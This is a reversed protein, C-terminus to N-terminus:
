LGKQCTKKAFGIACTNRIAEFSLSQLNSDWRLRLKKNKIIEMNKFNLLQEFM